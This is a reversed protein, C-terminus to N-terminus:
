HIGNVNHLSVLNLKSDPIRIAFAFWFSPFLLSIFYLVFNYANSLEGCIVPYVGDSCHCEFVDDSVDIRCRGGSAMCDKCDVATYELLFGGKMLREYDAGTAFEYALVPMMSVTCNGPLPTWTGEPRYQGALWAFSNSSYDACSVPAWSRPQRRAQQNCDYLFFLEHNKPSIKFPALGLDSSANVFNEVDCTGDLLDVNTVRFSSNKYFIDLIQYTWLSNELSANGEACAVQFAQYGCEPPHTGALWFPYAITLRGCLAPACHTAKATNLAVGTIPNALVTLLLIAPCLLTASLVPFACM